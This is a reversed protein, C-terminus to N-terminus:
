EDAGGLQKAVWADVSDSPWVAVRAGDVRIPKPFGPLAYVSSRSLGTRAMVADVRLLSVGEARRLNALTTAIAVEAETAPRGLASALQRGFHDALKTNLMAAEM